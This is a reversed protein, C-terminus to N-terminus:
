LDRNNLHGNFSYSSSYPYLFRDNKSYSYPIYEAKHYQISISHNKDGAYISSVMSLLFVVLFKKM